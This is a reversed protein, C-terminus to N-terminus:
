RKTVTGPVNLRWSPTTSSWRSSSGAASRRRPRARAVEQDPVEPGLQLPQPLLRLLAARDERPRAVVDDLHQERGEAGPKRLEDHDPDEEGGVVDRDREVRDHRDHAAVREGVGDRERRAADADGLGHVADRERAHRRGLVRRGVREALLDDDGGPVDDERRGEHDPHEAPRAALLEDATTCPRSPSPPRATRRGCPACPRSSPRSPLRFRRRLRRRDTVTPACVRAGTSRLDGHAAPEGVRARGDEELLQEVLGTVRQDVLAQVRPESRRRRVTVPEADAPVADAVRGADEVAGLGGPVVAVQAVDGTVDGRREDEGM